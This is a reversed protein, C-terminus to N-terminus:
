REMLPALIRQIEPTDVNDRTAVYEGTGIRREVTKGDLHALVTKVGRYGMTFQDQLILAGVKGARLSEILHPTADFGVLVVKETLGEEELAQLLGTATRNCIVFFGDVQDGFQNLLDMSKNYADEETPGSYQDDSLVNIEPFEKRMTDLFGDERQVASEQGVTYRLLIVDGDGGLLQALTRAGLQGGHYNDTAVFSVTDEKSDLASDIVVTPIGAKRADAVYPVLATRDIPALVLGDVQQTVYNQVINIQGERDNMTLPGNWYIEVNGAEDAAQRAGARVSEWVIDTTAMPIVAIRYHKSGKGSSSDEAPSNTSHVGCSLLTALTLLCLICVLDHSRLVKAYKMM